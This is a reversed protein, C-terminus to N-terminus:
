IDKSIGMSEWVKDRCDRGVLVKLLLAWIKEERALWSWFTDDEVSSFYEKKQVM